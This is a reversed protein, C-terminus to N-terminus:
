KSEKEPPRTTSGETPATEPSTDGTPPTTTAAPALRPVPDLAAVEWRGDRAKLTLAYQLTTTTTKGRTGRATALVHVRDGDAPAAASASTLDSDATVKDVKIARYPAPNVPSIQVGPTLFRSIDGNGALLASLFQAVTDVAPGGAALTYGYGLEPTEGTAPAAVASPLTAAVMRGKTHNVPVQFYRRTTQEHAGAVKPRTVTVGVTVAWMGAGRHDVASISVETGAAPTPPWEVATPLSIFRELEASNDETTGLWALVFQGAFEGVAARESSRSASPESSRAVTAQSTGMAVALGAPGCVLALGVVGRVARTLLATGATWGSAPSLEEGGAQDSTGPRDSVPEPRRRAPRKRLVIIPNKM